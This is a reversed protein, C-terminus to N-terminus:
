RFRDPALSLLQHWIRRQQVIHTNGATGSVPFLRFTPRGAPASGPRCSQGCRLSFSPHGAPTDGPQHPRPPSVLLRPYFVRERLRPSFGTIVAAPSAPGARASRRPFNPGPVTPGTVAILSQRNAHRTAAGARLRRAIASLFLFGHQLPVTVFIKAPELGLLPPATGRPDVEPM